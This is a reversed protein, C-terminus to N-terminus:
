IDSDEQEQEKQQQEQQAQAQCRERAESQKKGKWNKFCCPLCKGDARTNEMFGPFPYQDNDDKNLEYVYAGKPVVEANKPIIKGCKGSKADEESIASNTLFCWFRPCIFYHQNNPDSGYKIAHQYASKDTRDLEDKTLIVPHRTTPQCSTSFTKYIGPKKTSTFIVPDRRQLKKLLVSKLPMGDPVLRTEDDDENEDEGESESSEMDSADAANSEDQQAFGVKKAGGTEEEEEEEESDSDSDFMIPGKKQEVVQKQQDVTLKQQDVTLKTPEPIKTVQKVPEPIKTVQKVPEPLSIPSTNDESEEEGDSDFMIPGDKKAFSETEEESDSDFSIPKTAFNNTNKRLKDLLHEEDEEEEEQIETPKSSKYEGEEEDSEFQAFFDYEKAFKSLHVIPGSAMIDTPDSTLLTPADEQVHGVEKFKIAHRCLKKLQKVLPNSEKYIQSTKVIADIYVGITDLYFISTLESVRIEVTKEEPVITMKMPFGPKEVIEGNMENITSLFGAIVIKASDENDSLGRTVLEEVIDQLGMEGYQVQGYLEAILIHAADMEKFNEVRKLRAVLPQGHIETNLTCISYICPISEWSVNKTANTRSVFVLDVVQTNVVNRLGTYTPLAFGTQRVDRGLKTL